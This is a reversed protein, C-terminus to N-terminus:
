AVPKGGHVEPEGDIWNKSGIMKGTEEALLKQGPKLSTSSKEEKLVDHYIRRKTELIYGGDKLIITPLQLVNGNREVPIWETWPSLQTFGDETTGLSYAYAVYKVNSDKLVPHPKDIASRTSSVGPPVLPTPPLLLTECQEILSFWSDIIKEDNRLARSIHMGLGQSHSSMKDRAQTEKANKDNNNFISESYPTKSVYGTYNDAWEWWNSTSAGAMPGAGAGQAKHGRWEIQNKRAEIISGLKARYSAAKNKLDNRFITLTARFSAVESKMTTIDNADKAVV